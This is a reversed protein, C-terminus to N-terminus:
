VAAPPSTRIASLRTVPLRAVLPPPSYTAFPAVCSSAHDSMRPLKAGTPSLRNTAGYRCWMVPGAYRSETANQSERRGPPLAQREAASAFLAARSRNSLLLSQSPIPPGVD